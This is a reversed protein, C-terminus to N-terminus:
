RGNGAGPQKSRELLDQFIAEIRKISVTDGRSAADQLLFLIREKAYEIQERM